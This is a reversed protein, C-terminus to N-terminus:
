TSKQDQDPNRLTIAQRDFRALDVVWVVVRDSSLGTESVLQKKAEEGRDLSRVAVIVLKPDLRALHIATSLGLGSNAGTVLVTRGTLLEPEPKFELKSFLHSKWFSPSFLALAM